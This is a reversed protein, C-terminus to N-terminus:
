EIDVCRVFKSRMRMEFIIQVPPLTRPHISLAHMRTRLSLLTRSSTREQPTNANILSKKSIFVTLWKKVLLSKRSSGTVDHSETNCGTLVLSSALPHIRANFALLKEIFCEFPGHLLPISFDSGA